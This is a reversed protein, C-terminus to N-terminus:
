LLFCVIVRVDLLQSSTCSDRDVLLKNFTAFFSAKSMFGAVIFDDAKVCVALCTLSSIM